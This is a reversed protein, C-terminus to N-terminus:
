DRRNWYKSETERIGHVSWTHNSFKVEIAGSDATNLWRVQNQRYRILVNQHPHGFPNKYGASILFYKADTAQLFGSSSSTKSGHHPAVVIDANLANAYTKVLWNEATAEIDGTLLIVGHKSEIKLVCSNDNDSTFVRDPSLMTFIVEDWLWSQGAHCKIPAYHSLQRPVSTLLRDTTMENLLSVAGGIHDNDGHSIILTDIHSYGKGQLFPLVVSQGMDSHASFKAGTDYVLIHHRTELVVSLGQGVDLLTLHISGIEPRNLPATAMPRQNSTYARRM